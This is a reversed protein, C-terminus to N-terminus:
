HQKSINKLIFDAGTKAGGSKKLSNSLRLANEKYSTNDLVKLVSKKINNPKDNKLSIGAELAIVRNAVATEESHQPFVIMPVGFYLSENTSNMGCHTIFVDAIELVALQNVRPKIDFNSPIEGLSSIDIKEGVSMIINCDTDKLALICNKYFDKNDNLVTGLSIYVIKKDGKKIHENPENISTGIFAYKDSFTEVMPQFEKSTYVITNTNNDNQLISIFNDVDYGHLKLEQIKNNIKPMGIIMSFVEKFDKKILKATYKNFALTTTSCVFPINLKKAFLKGWFCVSDSVICDPQFEKLENCVKEDLNITTDVVMEILFSFDKGIKKEDKPYLPPLFGDCSIYKAGTSQIKNKFENFSYYWVQNGRDVLEKVVPLTPNTHGHAPISFFVIKSIFIV